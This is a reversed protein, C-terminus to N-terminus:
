LLDVQIGLQLLKFPDFVQASRFHLLLSLALVLRFESFQGLDVELVLLVQEFM